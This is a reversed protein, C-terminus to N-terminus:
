STHSAQASSFKVIYYGVEFSLQGYKFFRKEQL